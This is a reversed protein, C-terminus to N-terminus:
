SLYGLVVRINTGDSIEIKPNGSNYNMNIGATSAGTSNSIELSTATISNTSIM